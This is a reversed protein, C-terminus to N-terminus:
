SNSRRIALYEDGSHFKLCIDWSRTTKNSSWRLKIWISHSLTIDAARTNVSTSKQAKLFHLYLPLKSGIDSSGIKSVSSTVCPVESKFPSFCTIITVEEPSQFLCQEFIPLWLDLGLHNLDIDLPSQVFLLKSRISYVDYDCYLTWWSHRAM